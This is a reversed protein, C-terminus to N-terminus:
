LISRGAGGGAAGGAPFMLSGYTPGSLRDQETDTENALEGEGMNSAANTAAFQMQDATSPNNVDVVPPPTQPTPPKIVNSIANGIDAGAQGIQEIVPIGSQSM